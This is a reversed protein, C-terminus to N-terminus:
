KKPGLGADDVAPRGAAQLVKNLLTLDYIGRIDAHKTVGVKVGDEELKGLTSALPDNTIEINPWAADITAQALPKGAFAGIQANVSAKARDPNAVIWDNTAVQGRILAEVTDPHEKLFKASVILNTTVFRGNPWLTREDVLTKANAELILRSAWPEPLWAGDLEGKQFAQLTQANETPVVSVDGKGTTDVKYGQQTLWARLAVDQTGGLQPSAIKKGKLDAPSSIDQKVVLSAGGSTAGAVIRLLEGGTSTFGSISPNPGIYTADISGGKLAEIAAPGANFVQPKIETGGLEKAFFGEKLGALPTAHTVNAFFGLRIQSASTGGGSPGGSGAAAPTSNTNDDKESGYGCAALLAILPLLLLAVFTRSRRESESTRHHKTGSIPM